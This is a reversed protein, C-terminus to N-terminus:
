LKPLTINDLESSIDEYGETNKSSYIKKLENQIEKQTKILVGFGYLPYASVCSLATIIGNEFLERGQYGQVYDDYRAGYMLFNEYTYDFFDGLGANLLMTFGLFSMLGGIIILGFFIYKALDMIKKDIDDFFGKQTNNAINNNM